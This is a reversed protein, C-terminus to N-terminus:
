ETRPATVEDDDALDGSEASASAAGVKRYGLSKLVHLVESWTPFPKGYAQKYANIANIFELEAGSLPYENISRQRARYEGPGEPSKRRDAAVARSPGDRRRRDRPDPLAEAIEDHTTEDDLDSDRM